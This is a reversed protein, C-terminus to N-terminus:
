ESAAHTTRIQDILDSLVEFAIQPTTNPPVAKQPNRHAIWDRYKKIQGARMILAEDVENGFLKLIDEFRWYEVAKRFTEALNSSYGPPTGSAIWSSANQLHEIVWREFTAFLALIALDAAQSSANKLAVDAEDATAGVFQTRSLLNLQQNQVSRAAVKFCDSAVVFADYIPQLPNSFTM